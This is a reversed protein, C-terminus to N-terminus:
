EVANLPLKDPTIGPVFAMEEVVFDAPASESLPLKPFSAERWRVRSESGRETLWGGASAEAFGFSAIREGGATAQCLEQINADYLNNVGQFVLLNFNGTLSSRSAGDIQVHPVGARSWYICSQSTRMLGVLPALSGSYNLRAFPQETVITSQNCLLRVFRQSQADGTPSKLELLSGSVAILSDTLSIDARNDITQESFDLNVLTAAGRFVSMVSRVVISDGPASGSSGSPDNGSVLSFAKAAVGISSARNNASGISVADNGLSRSRTTVSCNNFELQSNGHLAFLAKRSKATSNTTRQVEFAVGQINLKSNQLRWVGDPQQSGALADPGIEVVAKSPSSTSGVIRLEGARIELPRRLIIRGRIEIETPATTDTKAFQSLRAVADALSSDWANPNIGAPLEASVILRAVQEVAGSGSASQVDIASTSAHPNLVSNIAQSLTPIATATTSDIPSSGITPGPPPASDNSLPPVPLTAPPAIPPSAAVSSAATTPQETEPSPTSTVVTSGVNIGGNAPLGAQVASSNEDNTKQRNSTEESVGVQRVPYDLNEVNFSRTPSQMSALWLTSVLLFAVAVLWPLNSEVLTPQATHNPVLMTGPSQSRPLNEVEALMVLDSILETPTQYRDQPRKAMLKMTIEFLEDSLDERWGRPDPPAQSGHSLLKQLATGEPFPPNGTLMYFLTCGLSYLDSRVDADRPNRAQEPSIYDFTGLTVGSATEDTTSRDLATNRALGMDVVKAAGAATVLVNSPKIDRHVVERQHAHQLAEAVQRTYFVADDVSLPGEMEVLDRLNVGDIFEFVIYNWQEAEGVYYVRAINPHDLKAAAQAELRFRRLTEPDRRAAPIVKVAVVRDLRLDRGRFVAGMGGGGIMQDVAFHDLQRGELMSALESLPMSRYFEEPAAVPRQSIVTRDDERGSAHSEDEPTQMAQPVYAVTGSSTSLEARPARVLEESPQSNSGHEGPDKMVHAGCSEFM